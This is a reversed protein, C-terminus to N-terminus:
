VCRINAVNSDEDKVEPTFLLDGPSTNEPRYILEVDKKFVPPDNVDIVKVEVKVTNPPPNFDTVPRGDVCKFLKEENKVSIELETIKIKEFNKGQSLLFMYSIKKPSDHSDDM